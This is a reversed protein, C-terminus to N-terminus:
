NESETKTFNSKKRLSEGNLELRHADHVLRDLIADAVTGDGIAEHWLSVPLQSTIITSHKGHRDEIIELLASRSQADMPQIAFDDLILIDQKEIRLLEKMTSGDAKGMKLSAFLKTYHAYLVKYGMQCAQHGLASAIFSKGTGTPGTILVNQHEAIYKGEALRMFQNKDLGRSVNFDLQEVSSKYRFRARKTGREISRHLRENWESEILTHILEDPTLDDAKRSESLSQFCRQMGHLRLKQMKSLTEQNM